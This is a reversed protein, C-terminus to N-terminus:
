ILKGNTTAFNVLYDAGTFSFSNQSPETADWKMSNEPTLAGFDAKVINSDQAVSLTGQDGITGFYQKSHTKFKADVSTSGSSSATTTKTTVTTGGTASGSGPLCQSYYANSYTCVSGADCATSGTYGIGGCQGWVAVGLVTNVGLSAVSISALFLSTSKM